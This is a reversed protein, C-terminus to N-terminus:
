TFSRTQIFLFNLSNLIKRAKSYNGRYKLLWTSAILGIIVVKGTLKEDLLKTIAISICANKSHKFLM